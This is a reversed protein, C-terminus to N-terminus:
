YPTIVFVIETKVQELGMVAGAVLSYLRRTLAGTVLGAVSRATTRAKVYACCGRWCVRPRSNLRLSRLRQQPLRQADSLVPPRNRPLWRSVASDYNVLLIDGHGM